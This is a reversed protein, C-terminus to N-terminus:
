IQNNLQKVSNGIYCQMKKAEKILLKDRGQASLKKGFHEQKSDTWKLIYFLNEKRKETKSNSIM